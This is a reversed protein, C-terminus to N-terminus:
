NYGGRYALRSTSRTGSISYSYVGITLYFIGSDYASYDYRGGVRPFTAVSAYSAGTYDSFYTTTGSSNYSTSAFGSVNTGGVNKIAGGATYSIGADTGLSTQNANSTWGNDFARSNAQRPLWYFVKSQTSARIWLGGIASWAYGWPNHIWFFANETGTSGTRGYMGYKGTALGTNATFSATSTTSVGRSHYSQSDTSKFLLVFLAQLYTWQQFSVCDYEGGRANAYKFFTAYVTNGQPTAGKMSYLKSSTVSSLFCGIHFANAFVPNSNSAMIENRSADLCANRISDNDMTDCARAHAYCQFTSNPATDADTFIIHIYTGDNTISLWFFPFRTFYDTGSVSSAWNSANTDLLTWTTGNFSYPKIDKILDNGDWSGYTYDGTASSKGSMPTFGYCQNSVTEGNVTITQPYTCRSYPDSTAIAIDVAWYRATTTPTGGGGSGGGSVVQNIIM